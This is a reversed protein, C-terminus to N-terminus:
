LFLCGTGSEEVMHRMALALRFLEGGEMGKDRLQLADAGGALAARAVDLHGRGRAPDAMTIVYLGLRPRM